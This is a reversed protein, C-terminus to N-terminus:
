FIVAEFDGDDFIGVSLDGHEFIKMMLFRGSEFDDREFFIGSSEPRLEASPESREGVSEM